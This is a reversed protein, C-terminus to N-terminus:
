LEKLHKIYINHPVGCIPSIEQEFKFGMRLYMSLATKMMPSTYLSIFPALDRAAYELCKETLSKGIGLGKYKPDVILM